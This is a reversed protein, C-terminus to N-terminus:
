RRISYIFYCVNSGRRIFPSSQLAALLNKGFGYIDLISERREAWDADYGFSHLRVQKFEPDRSLWEKPWFLTPDQGKSWTKRSGGGLGHVFVFDVIPEPPAFLLNLGLSGKIGEASESARRSISLGSFVRSLATPASPAAPSRKATLLAPSVM